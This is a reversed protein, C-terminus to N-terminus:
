HLVFPLHIASLEQLEIHHAM